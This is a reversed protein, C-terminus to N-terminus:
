IWLDVHNPDSMMVRGVGGGVAVTRNERGEKKEVDMSPEPDGVRASERSEGEGVVRGGRAGPRRFGRRRASPSALLSPRRDAPCWELGPRRDGSWPEPCGWAHSKV